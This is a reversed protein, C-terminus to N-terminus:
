YIIGKHLHIFQVFQYSILCHTELKPTLLSLSENYNELSYGNKTSKNIRDLFSIYQNNFKIDKSINISILEILSTALLENLLVIKPKFVFPHFYIYYQISKDIDIDYDFSIIKNNKNFDDNSNQFHRKQGLQQLTENINFYNEILQILDDINKQKLLLKFYLKKLLVSNIHTDTIDNLIKTKDLTIFNNYIQEYLNSINLLFPNHNSLDYENRINFCNKLCDIILILNEKADVHKFLFKMDNIINEFFDPLLNIFSYEKLLNPFLLDILDNDLLINKNSYYNNIFNNINNFSLIKNSTHLIIDIFNLFINLFHLKWCILNQFKKLIEQDVKFSPEDFDNFSNSQSESFLTVVNDTEVNNLKRKKISKQNEMEQNNQNSESNIKSINSIGNQENNFINIIDDKNNNNNNNNNNNGSDINELKINIVHRILEVLFSNIRSKYENDTNLSYFKLRKNKSSEFNDVDMIIKDQFSVHESNKNNVSYKRKMNGQQQFEFKNIINIDNEKINLSSINDKIQFNNLLENYSNSIGNLYIFQKLMGYNFYNLHIYQNFYQYEFSMEEIPIYQKFQNYCYDNYIIDNGNIGEDLNISTVFLSLFIAILQPTHLFRLQDIDKQKNLLKTQYNMSNRITSFLNFPMQTSFVNNDNNNPSFPLNISHITSSKMTSVSNDIEYIQKNMVEIGTQFYSLLWQLLSQILSKNTLIASNDLNLFNLLFYVGSPYLPISKAKINKWLLNCDTHIVNESLVNEQIIKGLFYFSPEILNYILVKHLLTNWISNWMIESSNNCTLLNIRTNLELYNSNSSIIDNDRNISLKSNSREFIKNNSQCNTLSHYNSLLNENLNNKNNEFLNKSLISSLSSKNFKCNAYSSCIQTLTAIVWIQTEISENEILFFSLLEVLKDTFDKLVYKGWKKYLFLIVQITFLIVHKKNSISSYNFSKLIDFEINLFNNDLKNIFTKDKLFIINENKVDKSEKNEKKELKDNENEGDSNFLLETSSSSISMNDVVDEDMVDKSISSKNNKISALIHLEKIHDQWIKLILFYLDSVLNYFAWKVFILEEASYSNNFDRSQTESFYHAYKPTIDDFFIPSVISSFYDFKSNSNNSSPEFFSSKQRNNLFEGFSVEKSLIHDIIFKKSFESGECLKIKSYLRYLYDKFDFYLFNSSLVISQKENDDYGTNNNDNEGKQNSMFKNQKNINSYENYIDFVTSCQNKPRNIILIFIRFFNIIQVKMELLKTDWQSLIDNFVNTTFSLALTFNNRLIEQIIFNLSGIIHILSKQEHISCGNVNVNNKYGILYVKFFLLLSHLTINSPYLDDYKSSSEIDKNKRNIGNDNMYLSLKSLNIFSLKSNDFSDPHTFFEEQELSFDNNVIEVTPLLLSFCKSFELVELKSFFNNKNNSFCSQFNIKKTKNNITKTKKDCNNLFREDDTKSSSCESLVYNDDDDDNDYDEYEEESEVYEKSKYKTETEVNLVNNEISYYYFILKQICLGLINSKLINSINNRYNDYTLLLKLIKINEQATKIYLPLPWVILTDRIYIILDTVL